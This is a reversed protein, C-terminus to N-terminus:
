SPQRHQPQFTWYGIHNILQSVEHDIYTKIGVQKAKAMFYIDETGFDQKANNWAFAFWPEQVEFFVDMNMLVFANGTYFVEEIGEKDNSVVEKDDLSVAMYEIPYKRKICNAGLILYKDPEKLMRDLLRKAAITPFQMDDDIWFIHTAGWEKAQKVIEQRNKPIVSSCYYLLKIDKVRWNSKYLLDKQMALLSEVYEVRMLGTTPSAIALRVDNKAM